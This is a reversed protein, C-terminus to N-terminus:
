NLPLNHIFANLMKQGAPKNWQPVMHGVGMFSIFRFNLYDEYFGTTQPEDPYLGPIHWPKKPVTNPLNYTRVLNKFFVQANDIPCVTDSDGSYYIVRYGQQILFGYTASMNAFDGGYYELTQSCISWTVNTDVHFAEKVTNNNFFFTAGLVDACPPLDAFPNISGLTRYNKTNLLKRFRAYDRQFSPPLTQNTDDYCTNLVDYPNLNINEFANYANSVLNPCAVPDFNNLCVNNFALVTEYSVIAHRALVNFASVLDDYASIEVVGNGVAIGKLNVRPTAGGYNSWYITQALSPIYIGAYSEGTIYFDNSIYEPFKLLFQRVARDNDQATLTDNYTLNTGNSFGVGVPSELYLVSANANWSYPNVELETSNSAFLWPGHEYVFGDLSSCGPGGNLWLVLPDSTANNQSTVFVYHFSRNFETSNDIYLYGSYVSFNYTGAPIQSIATINVLENEPASLATAFIAAAVICFIALKSM